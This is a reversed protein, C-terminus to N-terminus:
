LATPELLKDDCWLLSDLLLLSFMNPRGAKVSSNTITSLTLKLAVSKYFLWNENSFLLIVPKHFICKFINNHDLFSMKKDTSHFRVTKHTAFNQGVNGNM